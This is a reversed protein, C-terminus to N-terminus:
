SKKRFIKYRFRYFGHKRNFQSFIQLLKGLSLFELLDLIDIAALVAPVMAATTIWLAATQMYNLKALVFAAHTKYIIHLSKSIM